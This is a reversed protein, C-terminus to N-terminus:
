RDLRYQDDRWKLEALGKPSCLVTRIKDLTNAGLFAVKPGEASIAKLIALYGTPECKITLGSMRKGDGIDLFWVKRAYFEELVDFKYHESM